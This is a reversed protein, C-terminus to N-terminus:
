VGTLGGEPFILSRGVVGGVLGERWYLALVLEETSEDLVLRLFSLPAIAACTLILLCDGRNLMLCRIDGLGAISATTTLLSTVLLAWLAACALFEPELAVVPLWLRGLLESVWNWRTSEAVLLPVSLVLGQDLDEIADLVQLALDVVQTM